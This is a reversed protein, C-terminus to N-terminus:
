RHGHKGALGERLSEHYTTSLDPNASACGVFGAARLARGAGGHPEFTQGHYHEIAARVIESVSEGTAACLEELHQAQEKSLRANVRM